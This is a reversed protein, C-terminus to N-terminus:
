GFLFRWTGLAASVVIAMVALGATAGLLVWDNRSVTLPRAVTRCPLAGFGRSEMATALRTARRVAAVLLGLLQGFFLRVAAIPSRGAEVGRARRALSLIQWEDALIPLLRAGALAGVAFRPSFRLQQILSDALDTADTTALALVGSYAIGLLRLGLGIGTVVNDIGIVLPGLRRLEGTQQPALVTNLVGVTLAALLLPWTRGLLARPTLGSAMTAAALGVLMIGATVADTSFFLALMVLAAAGLKVSPNARALAADPNPRLPTFLRM